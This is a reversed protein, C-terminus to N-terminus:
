VLFRSYLQQYLNTWIERRIDFIYCKDPNKWYRIQEKIEKTLGLIENDVEHSLVWSCNVREAASLKTDRQYMCTESSGPIKFEEDVGVTSCMLVLFRESLGHLPIKYFKRFLLSPEGGHITIFSRTNAIPQRSLPRM